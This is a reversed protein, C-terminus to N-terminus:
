FDQLTQIESFTVKAPRQDLWGLSNAEFRWTEDKDINNANALATGIIANSSDYIKYEVSIYSLDKGTTNEITGTITVTYGIYENHDISINENSVSLKKDNDGFFDCGTFTFSVCLLMLATCLIAMIKKM